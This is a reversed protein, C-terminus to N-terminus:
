DFELVCVRRFDEVIFDCVNQFTCHTAHQTAIRQKVECEGIELFTSQSVLLNM